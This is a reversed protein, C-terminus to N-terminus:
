ISKYVGFYFITTKISTKEKLKVLLNTAPINLFPLSHLQKSKEKYFLFSINNVPFYEGQKYIQGNKTTM